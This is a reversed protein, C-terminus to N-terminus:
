ANRDRLGTCTMSGGALNAHHIQDMRSHECMRRVKFGSHVIVQAGSSCHICGSRGLSIRSSDSWLMPVAKEGWENLMQAFSLCEVAGTGLAYLESEALSQAFVAQRRAWSLVTCGHYRM